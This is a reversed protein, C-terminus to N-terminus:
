LPFELWYESLKNTWLWGVVILECGTRQGVVEGASPNNRGQCQRSQEQHGSHKAAVPPTRAWLYISGFLAHGPFVDHVLCRLCCCFSHLYPMTHSLLITVRTFFGLFGCTETTQSTGVKIWVAPVFPDGLQILLWVECRVQDFMAPSGNFSGAMAAWMGHQAIFM